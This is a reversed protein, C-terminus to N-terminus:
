TNQSHTTSTIHKNFMILVSIAMVETQIIDSYLSTEPPETTLALTEPVHVTSDMIQPVYTRARTQDFKFHM